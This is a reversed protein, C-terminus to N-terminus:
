MGAAARSASGSRASAATLDIQGLAGARELLQGVLHVILQARVAPRDDHHAFSEVDALDAFHLIREAVHLEAGALRGHRLHDDIMQIADPQRGLPRGAAVHEPM